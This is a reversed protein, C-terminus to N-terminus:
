IYEEKEICRQYIKMLTNYNVDAIYNEEYHKEVFKQLSNSKAKKLCEILEDINKFKWGTIGEIVISGANGLDSCIVPTGVSYAEVITMPFGEYCQTPLILAESGAILKKVEANSVFGKLEANINNEDIFHKCWEELPGTGCILLEPANKGLCKWAELLIDIGKIEEIRGVFIFSM